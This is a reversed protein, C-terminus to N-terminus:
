EVIRPVAFCGAQKDPANKLIEDRKYSPKIEDERFVNEVVIAHAQPEANGADLESLKDAFGIIAAMDGTLKQKQEDTIHLRSLKAVYEVDKETIKM